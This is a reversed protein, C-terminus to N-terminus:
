IKKVNQITNIEPSYTNISSHTKITYCIFPHHNSGMINWIYNVEQLSLNQSQIFINLDNQNTFISKGRFFDIIYSIYKLSLEYDILCASFIVQLNLGSYRNDYSRPSGIPHQNYINKLSPDETINVLSLLINNHEITKSHNIQSLSGPIVLKEPLNESSARKTNLYTNLEDALFTLTHHLM